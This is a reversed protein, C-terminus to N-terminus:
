TTKSFHSLEKEVRAILFELNAKWEAWSESDRWLDIIERTDDSEPVEDRIDTLYRLLFTLAGEDATFSSVKGSVSELNTFEGNDLYMTYLETLAIACTDYFFDIEEYTEGFFGSNKMAAVIESLQIHGANSHNQIFDELFDVVDLGEDSELAKYGWAGM